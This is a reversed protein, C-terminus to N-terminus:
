GACIRAYEGVTRAWTKRGAASHAAAGMRQRVAVDRMREIAAAMEEVNDVLLGTGGDDILEDNATMVVRDATWVRRRGIVPVGAAMAELVVHGFAEYVSPLVFCDMAAYMDGPEDCRGSWVVKSEIGLERAVAEVRPRDPGDGVILVRDHEGLKTTAAAKLMFEIGKCPDLRGVFGIVLANAQIGLARRAAARDHTAPM